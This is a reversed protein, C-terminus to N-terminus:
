YRPCLIRPALGGSGLVGGHRPTGNFCLSLKVKVKVIKLSSAAKGFYTMARKRRYQGLRDDHFLDTGGPMHRSLLSLTTGTSKVSCWAMSAYQPLPPIAESMKQGWCQIYTLPWSWV